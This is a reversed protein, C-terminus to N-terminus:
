VSCSPGGEGSGTADREPWTVPRSEGSEVGSNEGWVGM